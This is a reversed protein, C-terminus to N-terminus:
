NYANDKPFHETVGKAGVAGLKNKSLNVERIHRNEALTKGFAEAGIDGVQNWGLYVTHVRSRQLCKGLMEVEIPGIKNRWLYVAQIKTDALYPWYAQPLNDVKRMLQYFVFSPMTTLKSSLDNFDITHKLSWAAINITHNPKNELGIIGVRNYGTILAYFRRNLERALMAETFILYSVVEALLEAPLDLIYLAPIRDGSVTKRKKKVRKKTAGPSDPILPRQERQIKIKHRNKEKSQKNSKGPVEVGPYKKDRHSEKKNEQNKERKRRTTQNRNEGKERKKKVKEQDNAAARKYRGKDVYVYGSLQKKLLNEELLNEKGIAQLQDGKRFSSVSHSLKKSRVKSISVQNSAKEINDTQGKEIAISLNTLGTCSQLLLSIVISCTTLQRRLSCFYRM